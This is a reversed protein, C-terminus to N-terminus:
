LDSIEEAKEAKEVEEAQQNLTRALELKNRLFEAVHPPLMQWIDREDEGLRARSSPQHFPRYRPRLPRIVQLQGRYLRQEGGQAERPRFPIITQEQREIM